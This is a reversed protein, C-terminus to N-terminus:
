GLLGSKIFIYIGLGIFIIPVAINKNKQIMSTIKPFNTITSGLLCWIAMMLIFIIITIILQITSYGTFVPIYVGINDAGNAVAVVIVSLVEPNIIDAIISKTKSLIHHPNIYKKTLDTPTNKLETKVKPINITNTKNIIDAEQIDITENRDELYIAQINVRESTTNSIHKEKKYKIWENVGLAIPLIGLLGIYKQPISNLGFAGLISIAVLIALAIYQGIAIYKKKSKKNVQAYLLMMVFINDINTSIFSIISTIITGIM